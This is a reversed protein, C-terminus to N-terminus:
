NGWFAPSETYDPEAKGFTLLEKDTFSEHMYTIGQAMVHSFLVQGARVTGESDQELRRLYWEYVDLQIAARELRTRQAADAKTMAEDFDARGKELFARARTLRDGETDPDLFMATPDEYYIGFHVQQGARQMRDFFRLVADGGEGYYGAMFDAIHARYTEESMYPDWLLKGLLYARLEGFEGNISQNNGQEYVGRANCEAFLRVNPRLVDFNPFLSNYNRFNTTYDWIYIRKCHDAWRRLTEAFTGDQVKEQTWSCEAIPHSFCSEISCLRVIVNDRAQLTAPARRTYRYALTDIALHPYDKEIEAAVRNVFPLLSGMPSGETEDMAKCAPCQCGTGWDHSDNQSVSAIAARPDQELKTRLNKVVNEFTKEDTLCPQRDTYDGNEDKEMESLDGLTHVFGCYHLSGGWTEPITAGNIANLRLRPAYAATVCHWSTNRYEFVPKQRIDMSVPVSVSQMKPLVECDAALFRCGLQELLEYVAYLLGRRGGDLWLIGSQVHIRLEEEELEDSEGGLCVDGKSPWATLLAPKRGCMAEICRALEQAATYATLPSGPAIAIRCATNETALVFRNSEITEM